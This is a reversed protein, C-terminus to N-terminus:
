LPQFLILVNLLLTNCFLKNMIIQVVGTTLLLTEKLEKCSYHVKFNLDVNNTPNNLIHFRFLLNKLKLYIDTNIWKRYKNRLLNVETNYLIHITNM